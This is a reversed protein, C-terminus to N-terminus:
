PAKELRKLFADPEEFGVLRAEPMEKGSADLFVITPVGLIAYKQSLAVVEPSASRTMDAKFIARRALERRVRPDSFTKEDLERCPLCWSASFDIISPRGASTIDSERYPRWDPAASAGRPVFFIAAALFAAAAGFRAAPRLRAGRLVLAIGGVVLIAPLLWDGLPRPLATRLFYAAMALLIWGFVSKVGEMWEGARPLRRISGSFAALFLYPLGLGLSLVFFFLFGLFANQRAAVFALLGLVFPGVCPAAIVGVLLGMAYAGVRGTRAGAKQMLASPMRIDYLGFMSLALAVLVAAVFALVWPSQLAAGFLKGSLGAAVGLASYTTAMGLVYLTALGFVKGSEGKAQGGFFSVTLPIVPYVCPTLNLALGGAFLLLLVVFLGRRELLQGFDQSAGAASTPAQTSATAPAQSLAVAGGALKEGAAPAASAAAKFRVSAPALCQTDSCAQFEVAGAIEGPPASTLPVTVTFSGEYVSLPKEAFAFKKSSGEPYKPEGAQLGPAPDVVVTTAILYDESPKHSNVHWGPELTANLVLAGQEVKADVKLLTSPAPAPAALGAAALLAFAAAFAAGRLRRM